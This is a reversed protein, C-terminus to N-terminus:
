GSCISQIAVWDSDAIIAQAGPAVQNPDASGLSAAGDSALDRTMRYPASSIGTTAFRAMLDAEPLTNQSQTLLKEGYGTLAGEPLDGTTLLEFSARLGAYRLLNLMPDTLEDRLQEAIIHGAAADATPQDEILGRGLLVIPGPLLNARAVGDRLIYIRGGPPMLKDRLKELALSGEPANCPTGSLRTLDALAALGIEQRKGAPLASATHDILVGPMWFLGVGLIAALSSSLLAVRLRGPHPRRAEIITHVKAIAEILTEDDIELEEGADPGPTFLAPREGPNLRLVAPLSWHTLARANKADSIVLTADGFSVIVERRQAEPTERWLGTCELRQYEQLATM